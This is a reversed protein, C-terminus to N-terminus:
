LLVKFCVCLSFPLTIIVLFWSISTLMWGCIGIGPEPEEGQVIVIILKLITTILIHRLITIILIHRMHRLTERTEHIERTDHTEHCTVSLRRRMLILKRKGNMECIRM